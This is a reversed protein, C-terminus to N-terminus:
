ITLIKYGGSYSGDFTIKVDLQIWVENGNRLYFKLSGTASFLDVNVGIGDKLNDYIHGLSIGAISIEIAADLTNTEVYGTVQLTKYDTGLCQESPWILQGKVKIPGFSWDIPKRSEIDGPSLSPAVEQQKAEWVKM